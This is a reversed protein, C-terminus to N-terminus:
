RIEPRRGNWSRAEQASLGADAEEVKKRGGARERLRGGRGGGTKGSREVGSGGRHDNNAWMGTLQSLRSIGGRGHDMAGCVVAGSLENLTSLVKLWCSPRKSGIM